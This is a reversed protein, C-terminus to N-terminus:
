KILPIPHGFCLGPVLITPGEWSKKYDFNDLLRRTPQCISKVPIFKGNLPDKYLMAKRFM